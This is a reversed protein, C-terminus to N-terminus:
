GHFYAALFYGFLYLSMVIYIFFIMLLFCYEVVVKVLTQVTVFCLMLKATHPENTVENVYLIVVLKIENHDM